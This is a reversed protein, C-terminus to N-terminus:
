SNKETRNNNAYDQLNKVLVSWALTLIQASELNPCIGAKLAADIASKITQIAEETKM